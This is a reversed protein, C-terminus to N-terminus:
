TQTTSRRSDGDSVVDRLGTGSLSSPCHIGLTRHKRLNWKVLYSRLKKKTDPLGLCNEYCSSANMIQITYVNTFEPKDFLTRPIGISLVALIALEFYVHLSIVLAILTGVRRTWYLRENLIFDRILLCILFRYQLLAILPSPQLLRMEEGEESLM